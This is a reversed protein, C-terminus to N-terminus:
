LNAFRKVKLIFDGVVREGEDTLAWGSPRAGIARVLGQAKLRSLEGALYPVFEGCERRLRGVDAVQLRALAILVVMRQRSVPCWQLLALSASILDVVKM